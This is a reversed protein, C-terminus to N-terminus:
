ARPDSRHSRSAELTGGDADDREPDGPHHDDRHRDDPDDRHRDDRDAHQQQGAELAAAADLLAAALRRADEATMADLSAGALETRWERLAGTEPQVVYLEVTARIGGPGDGGADWSGMTLYRTYLGLDRDWDWETPDGIVGPPAPILALRA